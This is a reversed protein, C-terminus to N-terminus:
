QFAHPARAVVIEAKTSPNVHMAKKGHYRKGNAQNKVPVAPVPTLYLRSQSPLNIHKHRGSSLYEINGQLKKDEAVITPVIDEVGCSPNIIHHSMYDQCWQNVRILRPLNHM